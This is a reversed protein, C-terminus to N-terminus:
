PLCAMVAGTMAIVEQDHTEAEDNIIGANFLTQKVLSMSNHLCQLQCDSVGMNVFHQNWFKNLKEEYVKVFEEIRGRNEIGECVSVVPFKGGLTNYKLEEREELM